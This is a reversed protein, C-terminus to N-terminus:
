GVNPKGNSNFAENGSEAGTAVEFDCYESLVAATSPGKPGFALVDAIQLITTLDLKPPASNARMPRVRRRPEAPSAAIINIKDTSAM